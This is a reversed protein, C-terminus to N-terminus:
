FIASECCRLMVFDSFSWTVLLAHVIDWFIISDNYCFHSLAHRFIFFSQTVSLTHVFVWFYSVFNFFSQSMIAFITSRAVFYWFHSVFDLFSQAMTPGDFLPQYILFHSVWLLTALRFWFFSRTVLLTHFVDWFIVSGNYCFHNLAHCFKFFSQTVSLAHVFVWFYSIFDFFSQTMIAFIASRAVFDWFHSVFNLFSQTM